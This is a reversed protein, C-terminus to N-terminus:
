RIGSDVNCGGAPYKDLWGQITFLDSEMKIMKLSAGKRKRKKESPARHNERTSQFRLLRGTVVIKRADQERAVRQERM